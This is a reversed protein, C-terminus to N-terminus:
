AKLEKVRYYSRLPAQRPGPQRRRPGHQTVHDKAALERQRLPDQPHARLLSPSPTDKAMSTSGRSESAGEPTVGTADASSM